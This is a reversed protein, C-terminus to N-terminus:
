KELMKKILDLVMMWNKQSHDRGEETKCNDQTIELNTDNGAPSLAYTVKNYNEPVDPLGSMGSWYTSVIKKEPEFELVKGKDEYAKGEWVGKYTISSGVKWDTTMETGFLYQKVMAPNTLAEWVKSAPAKITISAKATFTQM